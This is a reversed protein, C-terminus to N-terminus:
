RRCPNAMWWNRLSGFKGNSHGIDFVSIINPHSLSSAARAEQEFRAIRGPDPRVCYSPNQHRRRTPTAFRQRSLGRGDWGPRHACYDQFKWAQRRAKGLANTGYRILVPLWRAVCRRYDAAKLLSEIEARLDPDSPSAQILFAARQDAPQQLAADFLEEVQKWRDGDVMHGARWDVPSGSSLPKWRPAM